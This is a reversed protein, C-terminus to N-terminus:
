RLTALPVAAIDVGDMLISGTAADVTRFLAAVLSSKGGGTRGCIGVKEGGRVSFSVGNLSLPLGDRYRMSYNAFTIAGHQPWADLIDQATNRHIRHQGEGDLSIYEVMREVSTMHEAVEAQGMVARSLFGSLQTVYTLALGAASASILGRSWVCTFAVITVMGGSLWDMRMQLWRSALFQVLLYSQAKDLAQRGRLEVLQMQGFARITALGQIAETVLALFPGRHAAALRSLAPSTHSFCTYIRGLAMALPVCFLLTWPLTAGCVVVVAAVQFQCQLWYVASTPMRSDVDNLDSSFRHLITGVPTVDFFSPIPAAVVAALLQSHLTKASALNVLLAVLGRSFLLAVGAIAVAVYLWLTSPSTVDGLIADAAVVLGQSMVYMGGVFAVVISGHWGSANFYALYTDWAVQPSERHLLRTTDSPHRKNCPLAQVSPFKRKEMSNGPVQDVSKSPLRPMPAPDTPPTSSVCDRGSSLEALSNQLAAFSGQRVVRGQDMVVIHDASQLLHYHSSLVMVVSKNALLGRIGQDFVEQAVHVDLASLPDDLLILDAERHYLARALNVRAKQGGSLNVGRGGVVTRDGQPLAALDPGLQCALLVNHYHMSSAAQDLDDDDPQFTINSCITAHQLWADQSAYALRTSSVHMHGRVLHFEGLIAKLVSSKGSGVPGVLITLQHRPIALNVDCLSTPSPFTPLPSTPSSPLDQYPRRLAFSGDQIAVVTRPTDCANGDCAAGTRPSETRFGAAEGDTSAAETPAALFTAIRDASTWAETVRMVAFAFLNCPLRAINVSAMATFAVTPTLDHGLGVVHVVVCAILSLTPAVLLGIANLESGFQYKYQLQLEADRIHSVRAQLCTEWGHMKVVRIGSIIENTLKVRAAQVAMLDHRLHGAAHACFYGVTMVALLTVFGAVGAQWGMALGIFTYLLPLAVVPVVLWPLAVFGVFIRTSDVALMTIVDGGGPPAGGPGAAADCPLRLSKSLVLDMVVSKVNTALKATVFFSSDLITVSLLSVGALLVALWYGHAASSEEVATTMFLLLSQILHPQFQVLLSYGVSMAAVCGIECAFTRCIARLLSPRRRRAQEDIWQSLFRRSLKEATDNAELQWVDNDMLRRTAGLRFLPDLWLLLVRSLWPARDVVAPPQCM